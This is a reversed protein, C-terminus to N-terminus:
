INAILEKMWACLKEGSLRSDRGVAVRLDTKGTKSILNDLQQQAIEIM